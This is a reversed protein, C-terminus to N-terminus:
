HLVRAPVRESGLRRVVSESVLPAICQRAIAATTSDEILERREADLMPLTELPSADIMEPLPPADPGAAAPLNRRHARGYIPQILEPKKSFLTAGFQRLESTNGGLTASTAIQLIREPSVGCRLAVRRMLLCIEAALTGSYLHVEDLVFSRLAPGFFSADQPRCLMYELMSYNTILIDPPALRGQDRTMIRSPNPKLLALASRSLARANEPTESTFHLFTVRNGTEPQDELWTNLRDVQDNVLANMPYILIARVGSEGTIRPNRYLDNLIPLLFSETKGAGTGATVILGPRAGRREGSAAALISEEQHLYLPRL